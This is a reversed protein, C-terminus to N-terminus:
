LLQEQLVWGRTYLPEEISAPPLSQAELYSDYLPNTKDGHDALPISRYLQGSRSSFCGSSSDPSIAASITVAACRYVDQM